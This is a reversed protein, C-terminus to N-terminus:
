KLLLLKRTLNQEGATLRALYIGSPLNKANWSIHHAGANQTTSLLTTVLRGSVDYISLEVPAAFAIDYELRVAANFPNPYASLIFSSPRPTSNEDAALIEEQPFAELFAGGPDGGPLPAVTYLSYVSGAYVLSTIGGSSIAENEDIDRTHVYGMWQGDADLGELWVQQIGSQPAVRFAVVSTGWPGTAISWYDAFYGIPLPGPDFAGHVITSGPTHRIVRLRYDVPSSPLRKTAVLVKLEDGTYDYAFGSNYHGVDLTDRFIEEAPLPTGDGEFPHLAATIVIRDNAAYPISEVLIARSGEAYVFSM